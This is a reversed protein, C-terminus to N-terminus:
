SAVEQRLQWRWLGQTPDAAPVRAIDGRHELWLELAYRGQLRKGDVSWWGGGLVVVRPLQLRKARRLWAVAAKERTEYTKTTTTV